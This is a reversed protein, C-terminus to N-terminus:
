GAEGVCRRGGGLEIARVVAVVLLNEEREGMALM